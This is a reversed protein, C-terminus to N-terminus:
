RMFRRIEGDNNYSEVVAKLLDGEIMTKVMQEMYVKQEDLMMDKRHQCSYIAILV